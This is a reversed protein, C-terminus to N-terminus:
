DSVVLDVGKAECRDRVADSAWCAPVKLNALAPLKEILELLLPEVPEMPSSELIPTGPPDPLIEVSTLKPQNGPVTIYHALHPHATLHTLHPYSSVISGAVNGFTKIFENVVNHATSSTCEFHFNRLLPVNSEAGLKRIVLLYLFIHDDPIATIITLNPIRLFHGSLRKLIRLADDYPPREEQMLRRGSDTFIIRETPTGKFKGLVDGKLPNSDLMTVRRFTRGSPLASRFHSGSEILDFDKVSPLSQVLLDFMADEDDPDPEGAASEASEGWRVSELVGDLGYAKAQALFGVVGGSTVIGRKLLAKTALPHWARNVLAASLLFRNSLPAHSKLLLEENVLLEITFDIIDAIIELPLPPTALKSARRTRAM